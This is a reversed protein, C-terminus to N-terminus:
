WEVLMLGIRKPAGRRSKQERWPTVSACPPATAAPVTAQQRCALCDDPTRPKLLWQLRSTVAAPHPAPHQHRQWALWVLCGVLVLVFWGLNTTM